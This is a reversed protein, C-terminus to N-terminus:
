IKYYSEKTYVYCKTPGAPFNQRTKEMVLGLKYISIHVAIRQGSSILSIDFFGVM